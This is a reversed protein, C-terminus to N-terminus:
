SLSRRKKRKKEGKRNGGVVKKIPRREEGLDRMKDRGDAIEL